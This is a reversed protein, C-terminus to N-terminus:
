RSAFVWKFFSEIPLEEKKISKGVAEEYQKEFKKAIKEWGFKESVTLYAQEGVKEKLTDSKLIKNVGNAIASSNRAPILFGNVKDNIISRIGGKNTAVVPTKAAMAEIITLGLPEDWTSPAVFVDAREYFAHYHSVKNNVYGTMIVNTIKRQKIEEKLAGMEPGDGVILVTGNIDKAARLLYSVGKHKTLRGTFM